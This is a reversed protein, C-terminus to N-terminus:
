EEGPHDGNSTPADGVGVTTGVATAAQRQSVNPVMKPVLLIRRALAGDGTGASLLQRLFRGRDRVDYNLDYKALNFVYAILLKLRDVQAASLLPPVEGEGSGELTSIHLKSALNLAQLKVLDSESSFSRAVRRLVDPALRRAAENRAAFEAVIWVITARAAPARIKELLKVVQRVIMTIIAQDKNIIQSRLVVISQAVISENRNSLLSLLGNLCVPAIEKIRSACQGISEITASMFELDDQYNLIYAQFERLILSINSSTSLNTLIELKLIKTQTSDKAKVFFSKLYPEFLSKISRFTSSTNFGKAPVDSDEDESDEDEEDDSDESDSESDSTEQKKTKQKQKKKAETTKETEAATTTTTTATTANNAANDEKEKEQQQQQKEVAARLQALVQDNFEASTLTVINKLIILQIERHSHLLRVLPRVLQATWEHQPGVALYLQIVSLVVASNRSQLLPRASRLLLLHDPDLASTRAGGKTGDKGGVLLNPNVFQTRAYRLLMNIILIQGWEDVDM